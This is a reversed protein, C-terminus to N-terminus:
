DQDCFPLVQPDQPQSEAALAAPEPCPQRILLPLVRNAYAGLISSMIGNFARLFLLEGSGTHTDQIQHKLLM